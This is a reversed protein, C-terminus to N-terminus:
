KARDQDFNKLRQEALDRIFPIDTRRRMTDLALRLSIDGSVKSFTNKASCQGSADPACGEDIVTKNGTLVFAPVTQVDFTTFLEPNIEWSAGAKNVLLARQQTTSLKGDVMGRLVVVAGAVRAQEALNQIVPEPMSFSVFVLLAEEPVAFTGSQMQRALARKASEQQKLLQQLKDAAGHEIVGSSRRGQQTQEVHSVVAEQAESLRQGYASRDESSAPGRYPKLATSSTGVESLARNMNRHIQQQRQKLQQESPLQMANEHQRMQDDSPLQVGGLLSEHVERYDLSEQAQANVLIVGVFLGALYTRATRGVPLKSM